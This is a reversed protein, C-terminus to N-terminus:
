VSWSQVIQLTRTYLSIGYDNSNDLPNVSELQALQATTAEVTIRPVFPEDSDPALGEEEVGYDEPVNDFFDLATLGAGQLRLSGTTFLQNPTHGKETRVGHSNWADQFQKLSRNIRPLFIYHLSFLHQENISDLLNNEELYYFLKYYLSTACRHSDVSASLHM